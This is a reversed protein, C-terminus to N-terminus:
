RSCFCIGLPSNSDHNVSLHFSPLFKEVSSDGLFLSALLLAQSPKLLRKFDIGIVLVKAVGAFDSLSVQAPIEASGLLIEERVDLLAIFLESSGERALLILPYISEFL